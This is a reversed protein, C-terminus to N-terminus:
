NHSRIADLGLEGGYANAYTVPPYAIIVIDCGAYGGFAFLNQWGSVPSENVLGGGIYGPCGGRTATNNAEVHFGAWATAYFSPIWAQYHHFAGDSPGFDYVSQVTESLVTRAPIHDIGPGCGGEGTTIGGTYFTQWGSGVKGGGCVISKFGTTGARAPTHGALGVVAVAAALVAAILIRIRAGLRRSAHSTPLPTSVSNSM